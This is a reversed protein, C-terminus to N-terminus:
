NYAITELGNYDRISWHLLSPVEKIALRCSTDEAFLMGLEEFFADSPEPLSRSPYLLNTTITVDNYVLSTLYIMAYSNYRKTHAWSNISFKNSADTLFNTDNIHITSLNIINKMNTIMQSSFSSLDNELEKKEEEYVKTIHPIHEHLMIHLAERSFIHMNLLQTLSQGKVAPKTGYRSDFLKISIAVDNQHIIHLYDEIQKLRAIIKFVDDMKYHLYNHVICAITPFKHSMSEGFTKLASVPYVREPYYAIVSNQQNSTSLSKDYLFSTFTENLSFGGYCTNYLIRLKPMNSSAQIYASKVKTIVSLEPVSLKCLATCAEHITRLHSEM